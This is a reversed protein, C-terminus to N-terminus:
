STGEKPLLKECIAKVSAFCKQMEAKLAAMEDRVGSVESKLLAVDSEIAEIRNQSMRDEWRAISDTAAVVEDPTITDAESGTGDASRKAGRSFKAVALSKARAAKWLSKGSRAKGARRRAAALRMAGIVDLM